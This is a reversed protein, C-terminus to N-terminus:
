LLVDELLERGEVRGDVRTVLQLVPWGDEHKSGNKKGDPLEHLEIAVVAYGVLLGDPLEAIVHLASRDTDDDAEEAGDALLEGAEGLPVGPLVVVQQSGVGGNAVCHGFDTSM